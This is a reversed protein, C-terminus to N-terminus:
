LSNPLKPRKGRGAFSVGSVIKSAANLANEGNGRVEELGLEIRCELSILLSGTKARSGAVQQVGLITDSIPLKHMLKCELIFSESYGCTASM